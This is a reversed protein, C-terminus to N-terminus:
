IKEDLVVLKVIRQVSFQVYLAHVKHEQVVLVMVLVAASKFEQPVVTFLLTRVSLQVGVSHLLLLECLEEFVIITGTVVVGLQVSCHFQESQDSQESSPVCALVQESMLSQPVASSMGIM